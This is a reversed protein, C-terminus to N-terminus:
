RKTWIPATSSPSDAWSNKSRSPRGTVSCHRATGFACRRLRARPPGAALLRGPDRGPGYRGYESAVREFEPSGPAEGAAGVETAYLLCMYKM